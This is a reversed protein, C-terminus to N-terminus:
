FHLYYDKCLSVYDASYKGDSTYITLHQIQQPTQNFSFAMLVRSAEAQPKTAIELRHVCHLGLSQAFSRFLEAGQIPLVCYFCGHADLLLAVHQLLTQHDLTLIQRARQRNVQTHIKNASINETFYPPNSIILDYKASATHNQLSVQSFHLQQSWPSKLANNKAQQIADADIDIGDILCTKPSKQALMIALLGCGTGIDLIKNAGKVKVWSGLMLSDTGVKM